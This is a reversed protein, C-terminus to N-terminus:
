IVSINPEIGESGLTDMQEIEVSLGDTTGNIKDKLKHYIKISIFILIVSTLICIFIVLLRGIFTSFLEKKKNSKHPLEYDVQGTDILQISIEYDNYNNIVHTTIQTANLWYIGEFTETYTITYVILCTTSDCSSNKIHITLANAELDTICLM